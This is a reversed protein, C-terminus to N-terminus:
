LLYNIAEERKIKAKENKCKKCIAQHGDSSLKNKAFDELPKKSKCYHCFKEKM